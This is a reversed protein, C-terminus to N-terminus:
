EPKAEEIVLHKRVRGGSPIPVEWTKEFRGDELEGELVDPHHMGVKWKHTPRPFPCNGTQRTEADAKVDPPLRIRIHDGDRQGEIPGADWLDAATVTVCQRVTETTRYEELEFSSSGRLVGDEEEWFDVDVVEKLHTVNRLEDRIFDHDVEVVLRARLCPPLEKDIYPRALDGVRKVLNRDVPGGGDMMTGERGPFPVGTELDYDDRLGLLHGFEHVVDDVNDKWGGAHPATYPWPVDENGAAGLTASDQANNTELLIRHHGPHLELDPDPVRVVVRGKEDRLAKAKGAPFLHIDAVVQLEYCRWPIEKFASNWAGHIAMTWIGGSPPGDNWHSKGELGVVDIPVTIRIKRGILEVENVSFDSAGASRAAAIACLFVLAATRRTM